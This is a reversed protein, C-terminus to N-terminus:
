NEERHILKEIFIIVHKPQVLNYINEVLKNAGHMRLTEQLQQLNHSLHLM